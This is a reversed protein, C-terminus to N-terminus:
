TLNKFNVKRWAETGMTSKDNKIMRIKDTKHNTIADINEKEKISFVNNMDGSSVKELVIINHGNEGFVNIM